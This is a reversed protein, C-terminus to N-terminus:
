AGLESLRGRLFARELENDTLALATRYSAVAESTRGLRRQLDAKTAALYRYAALRGDSELAEIEVLAAEPGRVMALAVSRNLAVVPSPWVRLLADYLGLVQAWDTEAYSPAQAHLAAIAAQLAFRGPRGGRVAELVLQHGEEIAM